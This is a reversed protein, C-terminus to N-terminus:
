EQRRGRLLYAAGVVAAALGALAGGQMAWRPGLNDAIWGMIPGGIPTGGLTIAMLIAAVRGRMMPETTLQVLGNASTMVTQAALGILVLALGFLPFSPSFGALILGFGFIFAGGVLFEIRPRERKAALLAGLVSGLAMTSSLAGYEGADAHFVSVAMTPIYITFNLGFTGILFMMVMVTVLDPRKGVYSLGEVFNGRRNPPREARLLASQDLMILSAIVAVYTAANVLFVPGTGIGAILLGAVAPGIMRAANFSTSNLAVANSLVDEGVLEAVFSQRAPADFAAAIGLLLAFIYVHWLQVADLVVLIGLGLSLLAMAAQTALLLKRKDFRDAASGTFPLLGLQPGFQLATVIGLATASKDTLEALVLWDQATRQMWTGVNSIIAGSAWIRYNPVNLSRFMGGGVGPRIAEAEIPAASEGTRTALEAPQLAGEGPPDTRAM